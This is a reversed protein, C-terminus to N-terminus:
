ATNDVHGLVLWIGVWRDGGHWAAVVFVATPARDALHYELEYPPVSFEESTKRLIGAGGGLWPTAGLATMLQTYTQRTMVPDGAIPPAWLLPTLRGLVSEAVPADGVAMAQQLQSREQQTCAGLPDVRVVGLVSEWDVLRPGNQSSRQPPPPPRGRVAVRERPEGPLRRGQNWRRAMMAERFRTDLAHLEEDSEQIPEFLGMDMHRHAEDETAPWWKEEHEDM